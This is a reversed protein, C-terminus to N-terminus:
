ENVCGVGVIKRFTDKFKIREILDDFVPKSFTEVIEKHIALITERSYLPRLEEIEPAYKVISNFHNMKGIWIDRTVWAYVRDILGVVDRSLYPEFIASTEFSYTYLMSLCNLRELFDSAGPEFKKLVESDYSGITIMFELQKRYDQLNSILLEIVRYDPKTVILVQNGAKLLRLLYDECESYNAMTIDHSNPFGIVGPYKKDPNKIGARKQYAIRELPDSIRNYRIAMETAFCYPCGRECNNQIGLQLDVLESWGKTL